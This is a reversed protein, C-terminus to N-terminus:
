IAEQEVVSGLFEIIAPNCGHSFKIANALLNQLVERLAVVDALVPPVDALRFEIMRGTRDTALSDWVEQVLRKVDVTNLLM